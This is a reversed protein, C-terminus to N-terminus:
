YRKPIFGSRPFAHGPYGLAPPQGPRAGPGLALSPTLVVSGEEFRHPTFSPVSGYPKPAPPPAQPTALVAGPAPPRRRPATGPPRPKRPRRPLRLHEPFPIVLLRCIARLHRGAQPTIALQALVAPSAVFNAVWSRGRMAEPVLRQLWLTSRPFRPSDPPVPQHALAWGVAPEAPAEPAEQTEPPKARSKRERPPTGREVIRAFRDLLPGLRDCLLLLLPIAVSAAPIARLKRHKLHIAKRVVDLCRALEHALTGPRCRNVLDAAHRMVHMETADDCLQPLANADFVWAV